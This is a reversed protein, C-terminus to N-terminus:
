TAAAAPHWRVVRKEALMVTGALGWYVLPLVLIVALVYETSFSAGYSALLLGLGKSQLFMEAVILGVLARGVALRLGSFVFPMAYPLVVHLWIQWRNAGFSRAAEQLKRDGSRAGASTSILVPFVVWLAVFAVRGGLGMGFWLLVVPVLAVLPTAYLASAYPRLAYEALRSVGMLFGFIIGLAGGVFLGLYLASFSWWAAEVLQGSRLLDILAGFIAGLRPMAIPSDLLRAAVEWGAALGLLWIVQTRSAALNGM